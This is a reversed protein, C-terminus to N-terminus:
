NIRQTATAAISGACPNSRLTPTLTCQLSSTPAVSQSQGQAAAGADNSRRPCAVSRALTRPAPLSAYLLYYRPM